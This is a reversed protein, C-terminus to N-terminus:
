LVQFPSEEKAKVIEITKALGVAGRDMRYLYENIYNRMFDVFLHETGFHGADIVMLGAELADLVTHHDMDGTILVDAKARLAHSVFSKGSGPCVAVSAVKRGLNGSVRVHDLGFATKVHEALDELMMDRKLYGYCGIGMANTKNELKFVDYAVEEYPHARLVAQITSQLNEAKVVTELRVENAYTMKNVEGIYPKTGELPRFTGIGQTGFSCDSYNGIHGAGEKNLAARILDVSDVPVYVVLKYLTEEYTVDLIRPNSLDLTKGAEKAMVAVDFNTHMAYCAIRNQILKILKRGTVENYNIQKVPSFVLPHHTILLDVKQAICQDIVPESADLALMIKHVEQEERGVLLGVNDWSEALKKPALQELGVILERCLM